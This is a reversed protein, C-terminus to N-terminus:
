PHAAGKARQKALRAEIREIAALIEERAARAELLKKVEPDRLATALTALLHLHARVTPCVLTCLTHVPKGDVAGFDVPHDLFCIAVQPENVHLVIPNRPHPLAYGDGFGTSGLAERALLVRLLFERSVEPPLHLLDVVTKLVAQKDAGGVRYHIGGARVADSLRPPPANADPEVVLDHAVNIKRAEAWELLEVRNFRYQDNVRYAPLEGRKIMRYVTKESFGLYRAADRVTLQM